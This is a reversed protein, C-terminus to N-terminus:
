IVFFLSFNTITVLSIQLFLFGWFGVFGGGFGWFLCFVIVVCM